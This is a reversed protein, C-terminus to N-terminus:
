WVSSVAVLTKDDHRKARPLACGDPDTISEWENLQALLATLQDTDAHAIDPWPRHTHDILDAAGDTALIAWTIASDPLSRTIGRDAAAPDAEAIWYGGPTNRAAGLPGRENPLQQDLGVHL